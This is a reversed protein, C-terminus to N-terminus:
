EVNKLSYYIQQIDLSHSTDNKIVSYFSEYPIGSEIQQSIVRVRGDTDRRLLYAGIHAADLTLDSYGFKEITERYRNEDLARIMHLFIRDNIRRLFYDSHTTIQMHAGRNVSQTVLDAIAIQKQPHVHAEPEEFLISLKNVPYKDLLMDLPALEKISSAAASIPITEGNKMRYILSQDPDIEVSGENIMRLMAVLDADTNRKATMSRVIDWDKLFESYLDGKEKIKEQITIPVNLLAGRGPVMAFTEAVVNNEFLESLLYEQVIWVWPMVGISKTADPVRFVIGDMEFVVYLEEKGVIGFLETQYNLVFEGRTIPFDIKVDVNLKKNGVADRLYDKLDEEIWNVLEKLSFVISGNDPHTKILSEYDWQKNIFFRTMREETLLKYLYHIMLAVYSKGLGSEGSLIILQQLKIESDRIAGLENIRFVITKM